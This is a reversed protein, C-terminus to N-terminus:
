NMDIIMKACEMLSEPFEESETTKRLVFVANNRADTWKVAHGYSTVDNGYVYQTTMYMLMGNHEVTTLDNGRMDDEFKGNADADFVYKWLENETDGFSLIFASSYETNEVRYDVSYWRYVPSYVAELYSTGQPVVYMTSMNYFPSGDINEPLSIGLEESVVQVDEFNSSYDAWAGLDAETIGAYAVSCILILVASLAAVRRGRFSKRESVRAKETIEYFTSQAHPLKGAMDRLKNEM